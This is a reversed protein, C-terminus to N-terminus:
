GGVVPETEAEVVGSTLVVGSDEVKPLVMHWERFGVVSQRNEPDQLADHYYMRRSGGAQFVRKLAFAFSCMFSGAEADEETVTIAEREGDTYIPNADFEYVEFGFLQGM